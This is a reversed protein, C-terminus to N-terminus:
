TLTLTYSMPYYRVGNSECYGSYVVNTGSATTQSATTQKVTVNYAPSNKGTISGNNDIVAYKTLGAEGYGYNCIMDTKTESSAGYMYYISLVSNYTGRNESITGSYNSTTRSISASGTSAAGIRFSIINRFKYLFSLFHLLM